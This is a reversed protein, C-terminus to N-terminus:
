GNIKSGSGSSLQIKSFATGDNVTAIERDACCAGTDSHVCAAFRWRGLRGGRSSVDIPM